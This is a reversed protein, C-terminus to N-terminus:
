TLNRVITSAMHESSIGLFHLQNPRYVNENGALGQERWPFPHFTVGNLGLVSEVVAYQSEMVHRRQGGTKYMAL